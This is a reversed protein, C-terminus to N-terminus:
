GARYISSDFNEEINPTIQPTLWTIWFLSTITFFLWELRSKILAAPIVQAAKVKIRTLKDQVDPGLFGLIRKTM